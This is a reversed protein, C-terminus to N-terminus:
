EADAGRHTLFFFVDVLLKAVASRAMGCTNKLTSRQAARDGAQSEKRIGEIKRGESFHTQGLFSSPSYSLAWMCSTAVGQSCISVGHAYM